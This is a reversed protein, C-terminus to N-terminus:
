EDDTEVRHWSMSLSPRQKPFQDPPLSLDCSFFLERTRAPVFVGRWPRDALEEDESEEAIVDVAVDGRVHREVLQEVYGELSQGEQKAKQTLCQQTDPQLHITVSAMAVRVAVYQASEDNDSTYVITGGM